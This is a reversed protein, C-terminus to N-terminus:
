SLIVVGYADVTDGRADSIRYEARIWPEALLVALSEPVIEQLCIVDPRRARIVELLARLRREFAYPAFWVNWTVLTVAAPAQAAPPAARDEIWAGSSPDFIFPRLQSPM